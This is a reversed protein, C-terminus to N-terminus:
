KHPNSFEPNTIFASDTLMALFAIIDQKESLTLSLQSGNIKNSNGQIFSSLNKSPQVHDSYHDLVEEITDFRGDHMYPATLLINRLTPVRFRGHDASSGTIESRGADPSLIDLGNNHFLEKYMKPGGHCHTCNAGRINNLPDPNRDFLAMGRLEQESPSYSGALYQDYPSQASILTRQFQALAKTIMEETIQDSGFAKKFLPPYHPTTQLKSVSQDLAQGMEHPDTLPFIAQEELSKARGDWFYNRVWLLNALSMSNRKTLAGEVGKSLKEGDTFAREQHHCSSCSISNDKSLRHEYFLMRGLYVGEKTTPNDTSILYRSGFNQPYVLPKPENSQIEFATFTIFLFLGLLGWGYKSWHVLSRSIWKNNLVNCYKLYRFMM